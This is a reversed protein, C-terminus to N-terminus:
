QRGTKVNKSKFQCTDPKLCNTCDNRYKFHNYCWSGNSKYKGKSNYRQNNRSRYRNNKKHDKYQNIACVNSEVSFAFVEDAHKMIPELDTENTIDSIFPRISVMVIKPLQTLWRHVIINRTLQNGSVTILDRLFQSPKRSGITEDDQFRYQYEATQLWCEPNSIWFDQLFKYNVSTAGVQSEQTQNTLSKSNKADEM